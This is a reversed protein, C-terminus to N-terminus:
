PQPLDIQMYLWILLAPIGVVILVTVITGLIITRKGATPKKDILTDDYKRLGRSLYLAASGFSVLVAFIIYVLNDTNEVFWGIACALFVLLAVLFIQFSRGRRTKSAQYLSWGRAAAHPGSDEPPLDWQVPNRSISDVDETTQADTQEPQDPM